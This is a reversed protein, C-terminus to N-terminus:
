ARKRRFYEYLGDFVAAGLALREEDERHAMAIGAVLYEIGVAEPRAFKADKLDIDHVIEAIPRLAPDEMGLRALLVEFTCLDGDHTFEAEFMDFRMEGPAPHYGRSPVFKFRVDPDVFRSVLWASAIRDIHVGKRTVWTRGRLEALRTARSEAASRPHAQRELDSVLGEAIERGPAGFFDTGAVATLRRRLRGVEAEARLRRDGSLGGEAVSRAEDAIQRYDAERAANFLAEVHNDELGEVFRAECISADGGGKVIERLLWEFDEQTEDTKPAVYVSNKIAVAGMTQLRRWIKVRFYAPKPPIQHILLLWRPDRCPETM